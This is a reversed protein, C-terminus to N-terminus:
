RPVVTRKFENLDTWGTLLDLVREVTETAVAADGHPRHMLRVFVAEDGAIFTPVGFVRHEDVAAEHEKRISVMAEALAERDFVDDVPVGVRGVVERLVSEDRLDRGADHRAAFLDVHARLFRDPHQDRIVTGVQLALLDRARAPDEWAELQGEPVHVQTLSFPLFRVDWDAGADLAIVVHEHANRAFPCRYDWTLAFTRTM